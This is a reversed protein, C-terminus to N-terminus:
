KNPKERSKKVQPDYAWDGAFTEPAPHFFSEFPEVIFRVMNKKGPSRKIVIKKRKM